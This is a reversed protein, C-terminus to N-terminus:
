ILRTHLCFHSSTQKMDKGTFYAQLTCLQLQKVGLSDPSPLPSLFLDIFLKDKKKELM